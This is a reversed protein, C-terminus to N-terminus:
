LLAGRASYLKADWKASTAKDAYRLGLLWGGVADAADEQGAAKTAPLIVGLKRAASVMDAKEAGSHGALEKKIRRLGAEMCPIAYRACVLETGWGLGYLKRVVILKDRSGVMIPAEYLVLDPKHREITAILSNEYALGLAGLDDGCHPFVWAGAMPISLGDGVCFGCRITALDLALISGM